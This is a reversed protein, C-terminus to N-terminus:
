GDMQILDKTNLYIFTSNLIEKYVQEYSHEVLFHLLTQNTFPNRTRLFGKKNINFIDFFIQKFEKDDNIQQKIEPICLLFIPSVNNLILIKNHIKTNKVINYLKNLLKLKPNTKYLYNKNLKAFQLISKTLDNVNTLSAMCPLVNDTLIDSFDFKSYFKRKKYHPEKKRKMSYLNINSIFNLGFALSLIFILNRKLNKMEIIKRFTKNYTALHTM